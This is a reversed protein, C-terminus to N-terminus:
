YIIPANSAIVTVIDFITRYWVRGHMKVIDQMSLSSIVFTNVTLRNNTTGILFMLHTVVNKLNSLLAPLYM